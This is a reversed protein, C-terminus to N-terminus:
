STATLFLLIPAPIFIWRLTSRRRRCSYRISLCNKRYSLSFVFPQAYRIASIDQPLLTASSDPCSVSGLRKVQDIDPPQRMPHTTISASKAVVRGAYQAGAIPLSKSNFGTMRSNTRVRTQKGSIRSRTSLTVTTSRVSESGDVLM